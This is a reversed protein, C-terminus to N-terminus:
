ICVHMTEKYICVCPMHYTHIVCYIVIYSIDRCTMYMSIGGHSQEAPLGHNGLVGVCVHPGSSRLNWCRGVVSPHSPASSPLIKLLVPDQWQLQSQRPHGCNFWSFRKWSCPPPTSMNKCQNRSWMGKHLPITSARSTTHPCEGTMGRGYLTISQKVFSSVRQNNFM